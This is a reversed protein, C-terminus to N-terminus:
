DNLKFSPLYEYDRSTLIIKKWQAFKEFNSIELESKLFLQAMEIHTVSGFLLNENCFFCLDEIGDDKNKFLTDFQNLINDLVCIDSNYVGINFPKEITKYNYWTNTQIMKRLYKELGKYFKSYKNTEYEHFTLSFYTSNRLCYALFDKFVEGTIDNNLLSYTVM